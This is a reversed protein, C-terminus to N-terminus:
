YFERLKLTMRPKKFTKLSPKLLNKQTDYIKLHGIKYKPAAYTVVNGSLDM